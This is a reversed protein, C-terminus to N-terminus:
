FRVMLPWMRDHIFFATACVHVFLGESRYGVLGQEPGGGEYDRADEDRREEQDRPCGNM